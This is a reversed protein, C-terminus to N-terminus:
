RSTSWYEMNNDNQWHEMNMWKDSIGYVIEAIYLMMLLVCNLYFRLCYYLVGRCGFSLQLTKSEKSPNAFVAASLSIGTFCRLIFVRRNQEVSESEGRYTSRYSSCIALRICQLLCCIKPGRCQGFIGAIFDKQMFMTLHSGSAMCFLLCCIPSCCSGASACHWSTFQM